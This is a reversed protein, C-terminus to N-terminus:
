QADGGASRGATVRLSALRKAVRRSWPPQQALAEAKSVAVGHQRALRWAWDDGFGYEGAITLLNERRNVRAAIDAGAADTCAACRKGEHRAMGGCRPANLCPYSPQPTVANGNAAKMAENEAPTGWALNELWNHAPNDDIHCGQEGSGRPRRHATLIIISLQHAGRRKDDGTLMVMIRGRNSLFTKIIQGARNRVQGNVGPSGPSVEYRSFGPWTKWDSDTM